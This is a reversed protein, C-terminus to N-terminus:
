PELRLLTLPDRFSPWTVLLTGDLTVVGNAQIVAEKSDKTINQLEFKPEALFSEPRGELPRDAATVSGSLCALAVTSVSLSLSQKM